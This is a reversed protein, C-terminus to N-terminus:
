RSSNFLPHCSLENDRINEAIWNGFWSSLYQIEFGNLLWLPVVWQGTLSVPSSVVSPESLHSFLLMPAPKPHYKQSQWKNHVLQTVSAPNTVPLAGHWMGCFWAMWRGAEGGERGWPLHSGDWLVLKERQFPMTWHCSSPSTRCLEGQELEWAYLTSQSLSFPSLM